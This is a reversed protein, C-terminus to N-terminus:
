EDHGAGQLAKRNPGDMGELYMIASYIIQEINNMQMEAYRESEYKPMDSWRSHIAKADRLRLKAADIRAQLEGESPQKSQYERLAQRITQVDHAAVSGSILVDGNLSEGESYKDFPRTEDSAKEITDTM